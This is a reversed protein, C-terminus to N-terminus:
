GAAYRNGESQAKAGAYPNGDAAQANAEAYPTPM